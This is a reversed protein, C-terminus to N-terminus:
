LCFCEDTHLATTHLVGATSTSLLVCLGLQCLASWYELEHPPVRDSTQHFSALHSRPMPPLLTTFPSPSQALILRNEPCCFSACMWSTGHWVYAADTGDLLFELPPPTESCHALSLSPLWGSILAQCFCPCVVACLSPPEHRGHIKLHHISSLRTSVREQGSVALHRTSLHPWRDPFSLFYFSLIFVLAASRNIVNLVFTQKCVTHTHTSHINIIFIYNCM